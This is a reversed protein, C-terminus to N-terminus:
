YMNDHTIFVIISTCVGQVQGIVENTAPNVSTLLAGSGQWGKGYYVGPIPRSADIDLKKLISQASLKSNYRRGLHFRLVSKASFM